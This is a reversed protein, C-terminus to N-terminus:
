QVNDAQMHYIALCKGDSNAIEQISFVGEVAVPLNTFEATHGENMQVVICDYLAAGPGFCCQMNDRVLVFQQIGTQQFSPLIYGHIRIKTNSIKEIAPTIMSRQFPDDKQMNFKITDFTIDRARQNTAPPTAAATPTTTAPQDSKAAPAPDTAPATNASSATAAASVTQAAPSSREGCGTTFLLGVAASLLLTGTSTAVLTSFRLRISSEVNAYKGNASQTTM